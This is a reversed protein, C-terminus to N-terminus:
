DEKNMNCFFDEEVFGIGAYHDFLVDDPIDDAYDIGDDEGSDVLQWYYSWRLEDLEDKTLDHVDRYM